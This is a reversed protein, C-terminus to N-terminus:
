ILFNDVVKALLIMMIVMVIWKAYKWEIVPDLNNDDGPDRHSVMLVRKFNRHLWVHSGSRGCTWVDSNTHSHKWEYDEKADIADLIDNSLFDLLMTEKSDDSLSGGGIASAMAFHNDANANWQEVLETVRGLLEDKVAPMDHTIQLKRM